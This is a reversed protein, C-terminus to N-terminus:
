DDIFSVRRSGAAAALGEGARCTQVTENYPTPHAAPTTLGMVSIDISALVDEECPPAGQGDAIPHVGGGEIPM